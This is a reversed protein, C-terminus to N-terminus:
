EAIEVDEGVHITFGMLKMTRQAADISEIRGELEDMSDPSNSKVKIKEPRYLHEHTMRGKTKIRTGPQLSELPISSKALDLIHTEADMRLSAGFLTITRQAADVTEINGEMEDLDGDQKIEMQEARLSANGTYRGEINVRMGIKLDKFDFFGNM